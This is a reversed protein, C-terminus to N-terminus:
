PFTVNIVGEMMVAAKSVQIERLDPTNKKVETVKGDKIKLQVLRFMGPFDLDKEIGYATISISSSPMVPLDELSALNKVRM